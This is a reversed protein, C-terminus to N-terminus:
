LFSLQMRPRITDPLAVMYRPDDLTCDCKLHPLVSVPAGTRSGQRGDEEGQSHFMYMLTFIFMFVPM